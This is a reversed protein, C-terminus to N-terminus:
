HSTLSFRALVEYSAGGGNRNSRVLVFDTVDWEVAPIRALPWDGAANRVLTIHPRFARRDPAFGRTRLWGELASQLAILAEPPESPAAWGIGNRSWVGLRDLDLGFPVGTVTPPLAILEPLRDSAVDGLFALTLHVTEPRMSRGGTEVTLAKGHLALERAISPSPWLAYFVRVLGPSSEASM